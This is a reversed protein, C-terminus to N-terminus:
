KPGRTGRKRPRSPGGPAKRMDRVSPRPLSRKFKARHGAEGNAGEEAAEGHRGSGDPAEVSANGSGEGLLLGADDKQTPTSSYVERRRLISTANMRAQAALILIQERVESPELGILAAAIPEFQETATGAGSNPFLDGIPCSLEKALKELNALKLGEGRRWKRVADATVGM